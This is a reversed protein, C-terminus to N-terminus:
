TNDEERLDPFKLLGNEQAAPRPLSKWTIDWATLVQMCIWHVWLARKLERGDRLPLQRGRCSMRHSLTSPMFWAVAYLCIWLVTRGRSLTRAHLFVTRQESSQGKWTEDDHRELPQTWSFSELGHSRWLSKLPKDPMLRTNAPNQLNWTTRSAM